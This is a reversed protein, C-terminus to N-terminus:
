NKSVNVRFVAQMDASESIKVCKMLHVDHSILFWLHMDLDNTPPIYQNFIMQYEVKMNHKRYERILKVCYSIFLTM